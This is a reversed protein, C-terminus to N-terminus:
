AKVLLLPSFKVWIFVVSGLTVMKAVPIVKREREWSKGAGEVFLL